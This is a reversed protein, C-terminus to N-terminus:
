PFRSHQQVRISVEFTISVSRIYLRIPTYTVMELRGTFGVVTDSRITEEKIKFNELVQTRM